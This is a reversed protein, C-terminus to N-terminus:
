LVVLQFYKPEWLLLWRDFDGLLRRRLSDVLVQLKCIPLLAVIGLKALIPKLALSGMLIQGKASAMGVM